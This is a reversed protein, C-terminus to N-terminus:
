HHQKLVTDSIIHNHDSCHQLHTLGLSQTYYLSTPNTKPVTKLQNTLFKPDPFICLPVVSVLSPFSHIVKVLHKKLGHMSSVMM